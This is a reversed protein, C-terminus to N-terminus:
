RALQRYAQLGRQQEASIEAKGTEGSQADSAQGRDVFRGLQKVLMDALGLGSGATMSLSIQQDYMDRYIKSQQSNFFGDEAFAENAGRMSKLVINLFISEFQRAVERLAGEGDNQAQQKIKELNALDTYAQPSALQSPQTLQSSL